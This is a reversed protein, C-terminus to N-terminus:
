QRRGGGTGRVVTHYTATIDFFVVASSLGKGGAWDQALRIYHSGTDAGRGGLAGRHHANGELLARDDPHAQDAAARAARAVHSVKM